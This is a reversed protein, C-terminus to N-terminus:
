LRSNKRAWFKGIGSQIYNKFVFFRFFAFHAAINFITLIYTTKNPGFISNETRTSLYNLVFFITYFYALIIFIILAIFFIIIDKPKANKIFNFISFAAFISGLIGIFGAIHNEEDLPISILQLISGPLIQFDGSYKFILYLFKIDITLPMFFMTYSTCYINLSYIVIFISAIINRLM